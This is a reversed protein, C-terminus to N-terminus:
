VCIPSSFLTKSYHPFTMIDKKHSAWVRVGAQSGKRYGWHDEIGRNVPSQRVQCVVWSLHELPKGFQGWKSLLHYSQYSGDVPNVTEQDMAKRFCTYDMRHHVPFHNVALDWPLFPPSLGSTYCKGIETAYINERHSIELWWHSKVSSLISFFYVYHARVVLKQEGNTKPSMLLGGDDAHGQHQVSSSDRGLELM